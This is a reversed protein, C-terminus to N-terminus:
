ALAAHLRRMMRYHARVNLDFAFDWDKDGGGHHHGCACLGLLQVACEPADIKAALADIDAQNTVDLKHISIAPSEKALAELLPVNIDTAIVKAGEAVMALVTARGIGQAASTVLATKGAM